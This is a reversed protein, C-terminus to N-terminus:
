EQALKAFISKIEKRANKSDRNEKQSEYNPERGNMFSQYLVNNIIWLKEIVEEIQSFTVDEINCKDIDEHAYVKDRIHKINTWQEQLCKIFKMLKDYDDDNFEHTKEIFFDLDNSGKIREKCRETLRDRKFINCEKDGIISKLRDLGHSKYKGMEKNTFIRGLIIICSLTNYYRYRLWFESNENLANYLKSDCSLEYNQTDNYLQQISEKYYYFAKSASVLNSEFKNLEDKFENSQTSQKTM